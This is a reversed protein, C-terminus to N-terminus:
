MQREGLWENKGADQQTHVKIGPRRPPDTYQASHEGHDEAQSHDDQHNEDHEAVAETHAQEDSHSEEAQLAPAGVFLMALCLLFLYFQKM